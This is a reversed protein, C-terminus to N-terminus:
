ARVAGGRAELLVLAPRRRDGRGGALLLPLVGAPPRGGRAGGSGGQPAGANRGAGRRRAGEVRGRSGVQGRQQGTGATQGLRGRAEFGGVARGEDDRHRERQGPRRGAPPDGRVVLDGLADGGGSDASVARQSFEEVPLLVVAQPRRGGAGAGQGA